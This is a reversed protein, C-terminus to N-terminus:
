NTRLPRDKALIKEITGPSLKLGKTRALESIEEALFGRKRRGDGNAAMSDAQALIWERREIAKKDKVAHAKKNGAQIKKAHLVMSDAGLVEWRQLIMGFRYAFYVSARMDGAKLYKRLRKAIRLLLSAYKTGEPSDDPVIHPWERADCADLMRRWDKENQELAYDFHKYHDDNLSTVFGDEAYEEADMQGGRLTVRRLNPNYQELKEFIGFNLYVEEEDDLKNRVSKRQKSKNRM